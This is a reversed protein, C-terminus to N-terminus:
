EEVDDIWNGTESDYFGAEECTDLAEFWLFDNIDTATLLEERNESYDDIISEIYDYATTHNKLDNLVELGGAWAEFSDLSCEVAYKM